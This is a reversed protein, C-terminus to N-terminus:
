IPQENDTKSMQVLGPPYGKRTCGHSLSVPTEVYPFNTMKGQVHNAAISQICTGGRGLNEPPLGLGWHEDKRRYRKNPQVLDKKSSVPDKVKCDLCVSDKATLWVTSTTAQPTQSGSGTSFGPGRGPLASDGPPSGLTNM